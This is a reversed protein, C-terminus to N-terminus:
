HAAEKAAEKKEGAGATGLAAPKFESGEIHCKSCSDAKRLDFALTGDHCAGCYKGNYMAEMTFDPKEGTSGTKMEFLHIHCENCALGLERTHLAHDYPVAKLPKEFLVTAPPNVDNGHCRKCNAEEQLSFAKSGDHCAGCYRGEEFCTRDFDGNAKAISASMQFIKNHCDACQLKAGTIHAKHSFLGIDYDPYAAAKEQVAKQVPAKEASGEAAGAERIVSEQGVVVCLVGVCGLLAVIISVKNLKM